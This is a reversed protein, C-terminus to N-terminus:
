SKAITSYEPSKRAVLASPQSRRSPDPLRDGSQEGPDNSRGGTSRKEITEGYGSSGVNGRITTRYGGEEGFRSDCGVREVERRKFGGLNVDYILTSLMLVALECM